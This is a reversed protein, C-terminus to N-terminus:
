RDGAILMPRSKWQRMWAEVAICAFLPLLEHKTFTEEQRLIGELARRDLIGLSVLNGDLLSEEILPASGRLLARLQDAIGGKDERMLISSPVRDAFADRAMARQRGGHLLLYTPILLSLEMLPQSILPHQEYPHELGVVPTHRNVLDFLMHLQDRKGPPIRRDRAHDATTCSEHPYAPLASRCLFRNGLGGPVDAPSRTGNLRFSLAQALVTWVPKGSLLASEYVLRPLQSPCRHRILYDAAGYAHHAQLFIQDGGQGTWLTDCGLEAALGNLTDLALLRNAHSIDPKPARPMSSLREAFMKGDSIRPVETLAVGAMRAASQAYTREDDSTGPTYQTVCVVRDALGLRKLCGLVIASDLGGSLSLLVRRYLLAWAAIVSETLASLHERARSYDDITYDAILARPNWISRHTLEAGAFTVCDGALLETIENLGTQRVHLPQRAIFTSLYRENFTVSPRMFEVDRIDAFFVFLGDLEFYYCPIHGSCDRIVYRRGGEESRLAAVYKGWCNELLWKGATAVIKTAPLESSAMPRPVPGSAFLRGVIVGLGGSLVYVCMAADVPVKSYVALGQTSLLANWSPEGAQLLAERIRFAALGARRDSPHWALTIYHHM